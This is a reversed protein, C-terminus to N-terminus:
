WKVSLKSSSILSNRNGNYRYMKLDKRFAPVFANRLITLQVDSIGSPFYHVWTWIKSPIRWVVNSLSIQNDSPLDPNLYILTLMGVSFTVTLWWKLTLCKYKTSFINILLTPLVWYLVEYRLKEFSILKHSRATLDEIVVTQNIKVNQLIKSNAM